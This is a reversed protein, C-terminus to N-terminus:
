FDVYKAWAWGLWGLFAGVLFGTVPGLPDFTHPPWAQVLLVAVAALAGCLVTRLLPRDEKTMGSERDLAVITGFFAGLVCVFLTIGVFARWDNWPLYPLGNLLIGVAFVLAFFLITGAIAVWRGQFLSRLNM